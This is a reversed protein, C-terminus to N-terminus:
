SLGTFKPYVTYEQRAKRMKEEMALMQNLSFDDIQQGAELRRRLMSRLLPESKSATPAISYIESIAQELENPRKSGIIPDTRMLKNLLLANDVRNVQDMFEPDLLSELASREASTPGKGGADADSGTIADKLKEELPETLPMSLGAAKNLLETRELSNVYHDHEAKALKQYLHNTQNHANVLSDLSSLEEIGLSFFGIKDSALKTCEESSIKTALSVISAADDGHREIMERAWHTKRHTSVSATKEQFKRIGDALSECASNYRTKLIEVSLKEQKDLISAQKQLEYFDPASAAKQQGFMFSDDQSQVDFFSDEEALYSFGVHEAVKNIPDVSNVVRNLAEQGDILLFSNGREDLSASKFFAIHAAGNYAEAARLVYEPPYEGESAAKVLADTPDVGTNVLSATKNILSVLKEKNDSSIHKLDKM